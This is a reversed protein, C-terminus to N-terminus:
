KIYKRHVIKGSDLQIEFLLVQNAVALPVTKEFCDVHEISTLLSGRLDYVKITKILTETSAIRITGDPNYLVIASENQFEPTGLVGNTYVLEFRDDFTGSVTTFLYDSAKLDHIINLYKDKLYINQTTFLGDFDFLSITLNGNDTAKYGLPVVDNQNFPLARGQITLTNTGVLSYLAVPNGINFFEGDYGSDIGNSAGDAYGVLTQKYGAAGDSIQLWVRSRDDATRYFQTNNGAIRMSNNFIADGAALGKIFFSQGSGIKGTPISSNVGPSTSASTGVGGLYNYVAYDNNTYNNGNLATNHTWLYITKDVLGLGTDGNFEMFLDINIASPYPNGILNVFSAGLQIPISITGNNPVGVFSANYPTPVTTSFTNPGRIIYGKGPIMLSFSPVSVWNGIIPDFSYYKDFQTLPSLAVLTQPSVPSSWYVYDFKRIPTTIRKYTINGTNVANTTQVLSSDDEFTLSGGTVEVSNQVTLTHNSNIVVSGSQVTVSCASLDSTSNYNGDFVARIAANPPGFSWTTGNWTTVPVGVYVINSYMLNCQGSKVVARFYKTPNLSGMQAVTLTPTTNTIPTINMTFAADSASEWRLITGVYGTLTIPNPTGASCLLQSNGLVGPNTPVDVTVVTTGFRSCGNSGTLTATYTIATNPKAYVISLPVGSVYPITAAADTYLNTAPSWTMAASLTGNVAVSDLAWCYGWNSEFYFRLRLNNMGLYSTLPVSDNAFVTATGQTTTYVKITTWTVGNDTSVQVWFKDGSIARLYHSYRVQATTYGALSFVPSTLTTRTTSGAVTSQSDANALYFQSADPSSFTANWGFANAYSYGSPVLTFQSTLPNGGTSTNAVTWNNTPLNFEETFVVSPTALSTSGVLQLIDGQCISPNVPLIAVAPPAAKVNITIYAIAGCLSGSAQNAVLTYSTTVTPNFTFGSAVSGSVGVSPTWTFTSYSAAGTVTVLTTTNGECITLNSKSLSFSPPATVSLTVPVRTSLCQTTFKWNYAGLCATFDYNNGDLRAVSNVYPYSANTTNMRLGSAPLTEFYLNYSGPDLAINIPVSQLTNGGSVTTTYNITGLPVNTNTRVILRGTQGSVMPFIDVSQLTTVSTVTFDVQAVFTQLGRIGLQTTPNTPGLKAIAGASRAEAFYTISTPTDPTTITSGTGLLTGGTAASYWRITAGPSANATLTGNGYGCRTVPVTSTVTPASCETNFTEEATWVSRDTGACKGRVWLWYSTSPLLGTLNVSTQGPGVSGTPTTAATPATAATAIYYEYGAVPAVTSATWSVSATTAGIADVSVNSPDICTPSLTVSIDDIAIYSQNLISTGRFGLYFVGSTAPTFDVTLSEFFSNNIGNLNSLINSMGGVTPSAGYYVTLNEAEPGTTGTKYRFILRYSVGGTLNLGPSMLWDNMDLTPNTNIIVSRPSSSFTTGQVSWTQLDANVNVTNFCNPLSGVTTTDFNQFYPITYFGCTTTVAITGSNLVCGPGNARVRYYYTTLPLLGTVNLSIIGAAVTYNNYAPLIATFTNNTSIDISYSTATAVNSWNAVFGNGGVASAAAAVTPTACTTASATILANMNYFPAGYCRDNCPIVWYYYTTNQTLGIQNFTTGLTSAVVTYAGVVTGVPYFTRNVFQASTPAINTLSRVVLYRNPAPSPAVFSNGVFSNHTISTGGIILSTPQVAPVVCPPTPTYTFQLGFNPYASPNTFLTATNTAGQSTAGANGWLQSSGQFRNLVNGQALVNNYGRLGVQVSYNAATSGSDCNGYSFTIASTAESIQVQFNFDGVLITTGSKRNVNAWQVIFIRNPATGTVTYTIPSGNSVWDGGMPVIAGGTNGANYTTATTLPIYDTASPAITGLTIFGNPSIYCNSFVAGDYTISFGIPVQVPAQDDWPAAFATTGTTTVYGTPVISQLFDYASVQANVQNSSQILVFLLLCCCFFRNFVLRM